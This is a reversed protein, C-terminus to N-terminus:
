DRPFLQLIKKKNLSNSQNTKNNINSKVPANKKTSYPKLTKTKQTNKNQLIRIINDFAILNNNTKKKNLLKYNNKKPKTKSRLNSPYIETKLYQSKINIDKYNLNINSNENHIKNYEEQLSYEKKLKDDKTEKKENSCTIIPINCLM